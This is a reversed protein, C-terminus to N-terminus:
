YIDNLVSQNIRVPFRVQLAEGMQQALDNQMANMAQDVVATYLPDAEGKTAKEIANVRAVTHAGTGPAEVVSGQPLAFAKKIVEAPLAGQQLGQGSRTFPLTTFASFGLSKAVAKVNEGAQLRTQADKAITAAMETRKSNSWAQAVLTKVSDFPRLAPAIVSDVRVVFFATNAANEALISEGGKQLRAAEKLLDAVFPLTSPTGDPTMGRADVAVARALTVGLEAAAEEFTMGGGLLDELQNSLEFLQDLAKTMKVDVSLADKVDALPKVSGAVIDEVFIVHWGLPSKLPVTHGGKSASFAGDGIEASLASADNRNMTGIDMMAPNAGVQTAVDALSKGADLLKAAEQAKAEDRVLIQKLVRTEPTIYADAREDYAVQLDAETVDITKALDAADLVVATIGKYQPAMFNQANNEHHTMLEATGPTPVNKIQAHNIRLVDLVRKEAEFTYLADTLAKPPIAGSYIASLMQDRELGQRIYRVYRDESLGNNSLLQNFIRSDFAGADNFFSNNNRIENLIASESVFLNMNAAGADLIASNVLRSMLMDGVGMAIAQDRTFQAGLTQQLKTVERGLEAKFEDSSIGIEGITAVNAVATRGSFIDGIGWVAFSAILLVLLAKIFISKVSKRMFKLM